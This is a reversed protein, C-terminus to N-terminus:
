IEITFTHSSEDFNKEYTDMSIQWLIKRAKWCRAAGTLLSAARRSRIGRIKEDRVKGEEARRAFQQDMFLLSLESEEQVRLREEVVIDDVAEQQAIKRAESYEM